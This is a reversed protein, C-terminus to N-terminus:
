DKKPHENKFTQAVCSEWAIREFAIAIWVVPAMLFDAVPSASPNAAAATMYIADLDANNCIGYDGAAYRAYVWAASSEPTQNHAREDIMRAEPPKTKMEEKFGPTVMNSPFVIHVDIGHPALELRLTDALGRVAYKSPAYTAYGPCGVFGLASSVLMLSGSGRQVMGPVVARVVNLTGFYNLDMERRFADDSGECMEVFRGPHSLGASTVVVDPVEGALAEVVSQSNTVDCVAYKVHDEPVKCTQILERSADELHKANRSVITVIAGRSLFEAALSKGLGTAGGTIFVRKDRVDRTRHMAECVADSVSRVHERLVYMIGGIACSIGLGIAALPLLCFAALVLLQVTSLSSYLNPCFLLDLVAVVGAIGEASIFSAALFTNPGPTFVLVMSIAICVLKIATFLPMPTLLEMCLTSVAGLTTICIAILGVAAFKNM